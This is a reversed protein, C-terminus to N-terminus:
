KVYVEQSEEDLGNLDWSSTDGLLHWGNGNNCAHYVTPWDQSPNCSYDLISEDLGVVTWLSRAPSGVGFGFPVNLNLVKGNRLNRIPTTDSGSTVSRGSNGATRAHVRSSRNALASVVNVPMWKTTGTTVIGASGNTPGNPAVTSSVLTWGGGDYTMDCYATTQAIPGSGDPDVTFDGSPLGPQSTHISNCTWGCYINVTLNSAPMADGTGDVVKCIQEQVNPQSSIVVNFPYGNKVKIPFTYAGLVTTSLIQQDGGNNTIAISGMALGFYSGSITFEDTTCTVVVGVVDANGVTGNANATVLCTQKYPSLPNTKVAVQYQNGSAVKTDFTFGPTATVVTEDDAGNNTLVVTSGPELGNVTGSVTFTNTVCEIEVTDINMNTVTGAGTTGKVTCTQSIPATPSGGTEVEVKYPEGSAVPESFAFTASGFATVNTGNNKLVVSNGSALGTIKGGITYTNTACNVVINAVDGGGMTGSGASVNCTQAPSGPQTKVTVAYPTGSLVKTSFKFAGNEGKTLDETGGTRTNTLTISNGNAMGTLTGGVFFSNTTCVVTVGTIDANTVNGSANATVTCSQSPLGTPPLATVSYSGGSPVRTDFTFDGNLTIVENDGGNNQLTLTPGVALGSVTGSVTYRKPACTIAVNLVDGAGVTGSPNEVTCTQEIAGTPHATVNVNYTTGSNVSTPFVWNGNAVITHFEGAGTNIRVTTSEGAALGTITGGVKYQNTTCVVNVNTVNAGAINGTGNSVVCTQTPNSPQTQVTVSYATGNPLPPFAYSNNGSVTVSDTNNNRLIVSGAALGSVTGGVTFTGACNVVVSTVNGSGVTGTGASVTCNQGAPQTGVTVNYGGGSDVSTAFQFDGNVTRTLDDGNNNKLVITKTDGLGIIQGGVKFKTTTCTINVNSVNAAAVTGSPNAVTCTQTPSSPQTLVTVSYATGSAQAPFNYAGNTSRTLNGTLNNQLVVSAGTALGSISGGVTFTNTTCTVNVNTVAATGMTGSGNAVTCTQSPSAPQVSVAVAYTGGTAITTAFSYAGNASRVLANAGNLTLTVSANNALGSITGGVTFASSSCNVVVGTANAAAITGTGASVSCTKGTPQTGITVSYTAKDTLQTPFVFAGDATITLNNSGNLQLVLGTAGALGTVTGGVTFTKPAADEGGADKGGSSSTGGSSSGSTNGSSSTGGADINTNIGSGGGGCAVGVLTGGLLVTAALLGKFGGPIRIGM